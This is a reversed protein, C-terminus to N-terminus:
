KIEREKIFEKYPKDPDFIIMDEHWKGRQEIPPYEMYNGYANNLWISFKRPIPVKISEFPVEIIESLSTKTGRYKEVVQWDEVLDGVETTNGNYTSVIKTYTEFWKEYKRTKGILKLIWVIRKSKRSVYEDDAFYCKM